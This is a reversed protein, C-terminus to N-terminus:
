LAGEMSNDVVTTALKNRVVCVPCRHVFLGAPAVFAFRWGLGFAISFAAIDERPIFECPSGVVVNSIGDSLSKLWGEEGLYVKESCEDCQMQVTTIGQPPKRTMM